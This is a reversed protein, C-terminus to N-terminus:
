PWRHVVRWTRGADTTEVLRRLESGGRALVVFGVGHRLAVGSTGFDVEPRAVTPLGVWHAGGDRTVYLTGRSEWIVGFGDPAIAIGQPYGYVSIGGYGGSRDPFPTWAVRRWGRTTLRFVSKGMNGVGGQTTCLAWGVIPFAITGAPCPGIQGNGM